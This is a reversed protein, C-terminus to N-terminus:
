FEELEDIFNGHMNEGGDNGSSSQLNTLSGDEQTITEHSKRQQHPRGYGDDNYDKMPEMVGGGSFAYPDESAGDEHSREIKLTSAASKEQNNISALVARM